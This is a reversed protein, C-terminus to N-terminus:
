LLFSLAGVVVFFAALSCWGIWADTMPLLFAILLIPSLLFTQATCVSEPLSPFWFAAAVYAALLNVGFFALCTAARTRMVFARTVISLQGWSSLPPIPRLIFAELSFCWLPQQGAAGVEAPVSRDATRRTKKRM